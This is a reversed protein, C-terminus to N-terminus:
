SFEVVHTEWIPTGGFWRTMSSWQLISVQKPIGGKLFSRFGGFIALYRPFDLCLHLFKTIKLFGATSSKGANFMKKQEGLTELRHEDIRRAFGHTKWVKKYREGTFRRKRRRWCSSNNRACVNVMLPRGAPPSPHSLPRDHLTSIYIYIYIYKYIM